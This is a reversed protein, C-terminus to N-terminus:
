SSASPRQDSTLYHAEYWADIDAQSIRELLANARQATLLDFRGAHLEKEPIGLHKSVFRYFRSKARKKSPRGHSTLRQQHEHFIHRAKRTESDGPTAMPTGDPNASVLGRCGSSQNSCLYIVDSSGRWDAPKPRLTLVGDGCDPCPDPLESRLPVSM